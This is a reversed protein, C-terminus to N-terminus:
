YTISYSYVSGSNTFNDDDQDSGILITSGDSSLSVSVGFSDYTGDDSAWIKQIAEVTLTDIDSTKASSTPNQCGSLLIFILSVLISIVKRM